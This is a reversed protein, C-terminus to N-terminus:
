RGPRDHGRRMGRGYGGRGGFPMLEFYAERQDPTLIEAEKIMTEVMISDLESQVATARSRLEHLMAANVDPKLYEDRMRLRLDRIVEGKEILEPMVAQLIESMVEIQEESLDLRDGVRRIRESIFGRPGEPHGM